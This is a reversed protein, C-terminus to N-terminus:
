ERSTRQAQRHLTLRETPSAIKSYDVSSIGNHNAPAGGGSSPPWLFSLDGTKQGLLWEEPTLPNVGDKGYLIEDGKKALVTGHEDVDMFVQLGHLVASHVARKDIGVKTAAEVLATRVRDERWKREIAANVDRLQAIDRDRASLMRDHDDKMTQTRKMLLAEFGQKDYVDMDDLGKVREKLKRFEDPNIDEFQTKLATLQTDADRRLRRETELATKLGTVDDSPPDTQLLWRGDKEGYHERLAEPIEGLTPFSQRLAM